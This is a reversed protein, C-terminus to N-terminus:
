HVDCAVGRKHAACGAKVEAAMWPEVVQWCVLVRGASCVQVAEPALGGQQGLQPVRVDRSQQAGAQQRRTRLPAGGGNRSRPAADQAARRALRRPAGGSGPLRPRLQCAAQRRRRAAWRWAKRLEEWVEQGAGATRVAAAPYWITSCSSAVLAALSNCEAPQRGAQGRRSRRAAWSAAASAWMCAAPQTCRSMLGAFTSSLAARSAARSASRPSAAAAASSASPATLWALGVPPKWLCRM